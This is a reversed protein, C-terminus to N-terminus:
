RSLIPHARVRQTGPKKSRGGRSTFARPFSELDAALWAIKAPFFPVLGSEYDWAATAPYGETLAPM